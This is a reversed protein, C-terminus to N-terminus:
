ANQSAQKRELFVRWIWQARVARQSRTFGVDVDEQWSTALLVVGGRSYKFGFFLQFINAMIAYPSGKFTFWFCYEM